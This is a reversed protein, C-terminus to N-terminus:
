SAEPAPAERAIRRWDGPQLDAVVDGFYDGPKRMRLRTTLLSHFDFRPHVALACLGYSALDAADDFGM